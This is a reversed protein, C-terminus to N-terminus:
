RYQPSWLAAKWAVGRPVILHAALVDKGHEPDTRHGAGPFLVALYGGCMGRKSKEM